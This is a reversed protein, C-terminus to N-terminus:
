WVNVIGYAFPGMLGLPAPSLILNRIFARTRAVWPGTAGARATWGPRGVRGGAWGVKVCRMWRWRSMGHDPGSRHRAAMIERPGAAGPPTGWRRPDRSPSNAGRCAQGVRHARRPQATPASPGPLPRAQGPCHACKAPATPVGPRPLPCARGPCHARRPRATPAGAGPLPFARGRCHARRHPLVRHLRSTGVGDRGGDLRTRSVVGAHLRRVDAAFWLRKPVVLLHPTAVGDLVIGTASTSPRDPDRSEPFARNVAQAVAVFTTPMRRCM